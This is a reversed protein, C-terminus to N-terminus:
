QGRGHTKSVLGDVLGFKILLSGFGFGLDDGRYLSVGEVWSDSVNLIEEPIVSMAEIMPCLVSLDRSFVVERFAVKPGRDDGALDTEARGRISAGMRTAGPHTDKVSQLFLLDIHGFTEFLDEVLEGFIDVLVREREEEGFDGLRRLEIVRQKEGALVLRDKWWFGFEM